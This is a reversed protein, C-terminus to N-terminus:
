KVVRVDEWRGKNLKLLLTPTVSYGRLGLVELRRLKGWGVEELMPRGRDAVEATYLWRNYSLDLLVLLPCITPLRQLSIRVPINVLALHTITPPFALVTSASLFSSLVALSRLALPESDRTQVADWSGDPESDRHGGAGTDDRHVNITTPDNKRLVNGRLTNYPGVVILETDVHTTGKCLADLEIQSLPAQIAAYRVLVRRLHLPIYPVVQALDAGPCTARILQLCLLTLQPTRSSPNPNPYIPRSRASEPSSSAPTVDASFLLSLAHERWAPTDTAVNMDSRVKTPLPTSTTPSRWSRPPSPGPIWPRSTAPAPSPYILDIPLTPQNHPHSSLSSSHKGQVNQAHRFHEGRHVSPETLYVLVIFFVSRLNHLINNVQRVPVDGQGPATKQPAM